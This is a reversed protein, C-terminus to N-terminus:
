LVVLVKDLIFSDAYSLFVVAPPIEYLSLSMQARGHEGPVIGVDYM